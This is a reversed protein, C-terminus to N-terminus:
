RVRIRTRSKFPNSIFRVKPNSRVPLKAAAIMRAPAATVASNLTACSVEAPSSFDDFVLDIEVAECLGCLDKLAAGALGAATKRGIDVNGRRQAQCSYAGVAGAQANEHVGLPPTIHMVDLDDALEAAEVDM